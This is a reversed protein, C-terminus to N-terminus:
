RNGSNNSEPHAISKELTDLEEQIEALKTEELRLENEKEYQQSTLRPLEQRANEKQRELAAKIAAQLYILQARTAPDPTNRITEDLAKLEEEQSSDQIQRMMEKLEALEAKATSIRSQQRLLKESLIRSQQVSVNLLRIDARLQKVEALLAQLVQKENFEISAGQPQSASQAFVSSITVISLFLVTVLSRTKIKTKQYIM